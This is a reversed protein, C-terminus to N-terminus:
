SVSRTWAAGGEAQTLCWVLSVKSQSASLSPPNDRKDAM